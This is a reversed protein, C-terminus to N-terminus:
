AASGSVSNEAGYFLCVFSLGVTVLSSFQLSLSLSLALSRWLAFGRERLTPEGFCVNELNKKYLTQSSKQPNNSAVIISSSSPYLLFSRMARTTIKTIAETATAVRKTVNM